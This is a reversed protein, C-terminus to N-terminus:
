VTCHNLPPHSRRRIFRDPIDRDVVPIWFGDYHDMEMQKGGAGDDVISPYLWPHLESITSLM